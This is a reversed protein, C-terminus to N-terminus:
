KQSCRGLVVLFQPTEVCPQPSLLVRKGICPLFFFFVFYFLFVTPRLASALGLRLRQPFYVGNRQLPTCVRERGRARIVTVM